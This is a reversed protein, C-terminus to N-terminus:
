CHNSDTAGGVCANETLTSEQVAITEEFLFLSDDELESMEGATKANEDGSGATVVDPSAMSVQQPSSSTTSSPTDTGLTNGSTDGSVAMVAIGMASRVRELKVVDGPAVQSLNVKDNNM